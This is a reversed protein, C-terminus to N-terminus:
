QKKQEKSKQIQATVFQNINTPRETRKNPNFDSAVSFVNKHRVMSFLKGDLYFEEYGNQPKIELKGNQKLAKIYDNYLKETKTTKDKKAETKDAKKSINEKKSKTM